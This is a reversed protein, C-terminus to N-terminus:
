VFRKSRINEYDEERMTMKKAVNRTYIEVM